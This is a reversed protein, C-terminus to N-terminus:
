GPAAQTDLGSAPRAELGARMRSAPAVPVRFSGLRQPNVRGLQPSDSTPGSTGVGAFLRGHARSLWGGAGHLRGDGPVEQPCLRHDRARERQGSGIWRRPVLQRSAGSCPPSRIGAGPDCGRGPSGRRRDDPSSGPRSRRSPHRLRGPRRIRWDNPSAVPDRAARLHPTPDYRPRAAETVRPGGAGLSRLRSRPLRQARPPDRALGRDQALARSGRPIVTAHRMFRLDRLSM